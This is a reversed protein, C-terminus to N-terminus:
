LMKDRFPQGSLYDEQNQVEAGAVVREVQGATKDAVKEAEQNQVVAGAVVEEGQGATKDAAKEAVEAVAAVQHPYLILGYRDRVLFVYQSFTLAIASGIFSPPQLAITTPHTPPPLTMPSSTTTTITTATATTCLSLADALRLRHTSFLMWFLSDHAIFHHYYHHHRHRHDVLVFCRGVEFSPDLLADLVVAATLRRGRDYCLMGDLLQLGPAGAAVLGLQKM